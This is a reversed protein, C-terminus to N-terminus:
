PQEMPDDNQLWEEQPWVEEERRQATERPGAVGRSSKQGGMIAGQRVVTSGQRRQPKPPSEEGRM